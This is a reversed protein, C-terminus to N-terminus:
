SLSARSLGRGSWQPAAGDHLGIASPGPTARFEFCAVALHAPVRATIGIRPRHQTGDSPQRYAPSSACDFASRRGPLVTEPPFARLNPHKGISRAKRTISPDDTLGAAAGPPELPYAASDYLVPFKRSGRV